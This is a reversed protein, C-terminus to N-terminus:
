FNWMKEFLLFCVKSIHVFTSNSNGIFILILIQIINCPPGASFTLFKKSLIFILIINCTLGASFTILKWSLTMQLDSMCVDEMYLLLIACIFYKGNYLLIPTIDPISPQPYYRINNKYNNNDNITHKHTLFLHIFLM